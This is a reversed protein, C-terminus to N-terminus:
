KEGLERSLWARAYTWDRKVTRPSVGLTEATEEISLGAFFRLRVVQGVGPSVEELRNLADDIALINVVQEDCALDILNAPLRVRGGGRKENGHARAHDILIRRMAQAAAFFFQARGEWGVDATGVLKMYVEHVLATPQLTHDRREGAMRQRAMSKLQDYVLPLLKEAAARDGCSASVMLQTVNGNNEEWMPLFRRAPSPRDCAFPSKSDAVTDGDLVALTDM